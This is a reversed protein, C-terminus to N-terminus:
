DWSSGGSQQNIGQDICLDGQAVQLNCYMQLDAGDKHLLMSGNKLELTSGNAKLAGINAEFGSEVKM